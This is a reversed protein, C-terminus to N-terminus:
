AGVWWYGFAGISGIAFVDGTSLTAVGLPGSNGGGWLDASAYNSGDSTNTYSLHDNGYHAAYLRTGAANKCCYRPDGYTPTYITLGTGDSAKIKAIKGTSQQTLWLYGDAMLELDYNTNTTGYFTATGGTTSAAIKGVEASASCAFYLTGSDHIIQFPAKGTGPSCITSIATGPSSTRNINRITGDALAAVLNTGTWCLGYITGLGHSYRNVSQPAGGATTAHPQIRWIYTAGGLWVYTGDWCAGYIEAVNFDTQDRRAPGAKTFQQIVGNGGTWADDYGDVAVSYGGPNAGYSTITPASPAGSVGTSPTGNSYRVTGVGTIRYWYTTGNTLGTDSYTTAAATSSLTTLSTTFGSNTAREIKYYTRNALSTWSLDNTTDGPTVTLGTVQGLATAAPTTADTQFTGTSASANAHQRLKIAVNRDGIDVGYSNPNTAFAKWTSGGDFSVQVAGDSPVTFSTDASYTDDDARIHCDVATDLATFVIKNSSSVLTGDAAGTTGGTVIKLAM